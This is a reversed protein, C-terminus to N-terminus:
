MCVDTGRSSSVAIYAKASAQKTVLVLSPIFKTLREIDRAAMIIPKSFACPSVGMRFMCGHIIESARAHRLCHLRIDHRAGGAEPIRSFMEPRM